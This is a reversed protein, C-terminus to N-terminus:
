YLLMLFRPNIITEMCIGGLVLITLVIIPMLSLTRKRAMIEWFLLYGAPVYLIAQPIHFALYWLIGKLGHKMTLVSILVGGSFGFYGMAGTLLIQAMPTAAMLLLILYTGMRETFVRFFLRIRDEQSLNKMLIYTGQEGAGGGAFAAAMGQKTEEAMGNCFLTGLISGSILFFSLGFKLSDEKSKFIKM